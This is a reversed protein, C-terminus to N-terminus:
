TWLPPPSTPSSWVLIAPRYGDRDDGAPTPGGSLEHPYCSVKVQPEPIGTETSCSSIEDREAGPAAEAVQAGIRMSPNLSGMPDQFVATIYSGRRARRREEEPASLMDEGDLTM